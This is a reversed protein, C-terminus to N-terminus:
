KENCSKCIGKIYTHYEILSFGELEKISIDALDYKFDYVKDINLKKSSFAKLVEILDIFNFVDNIVCRFENDKEEKLYLNTFFVFERTKHEWNFKAPKGKIINQPVLIEDILYEIKKATEIKFNNIEFIM